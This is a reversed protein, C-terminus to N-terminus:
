VNHLQFVRELVNQHKKLTTEKKLLFYIFLFCLLAQFHEMRAVFFLNVFIKKSTLKSQALISKECHKEIKGSSFPGTFHLVVM